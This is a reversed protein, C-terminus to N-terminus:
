RAPRSRRGGSLMLVVLVGALWEGLFVSTLIAVGALLDAGFVGAMVQGLLGAVLIAGGVLLIALLPLDARTPPPPRWAPLMEWQASLAPVEGAGIWVLIGHIVLAVLM